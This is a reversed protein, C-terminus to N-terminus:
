ASSPNNLLESINHLSKLVYYMLPINETFYVYAYDGPTGFRPIHSSFLFSYLQIVTVYYSFCKGFAAMQSLLYKHSAM